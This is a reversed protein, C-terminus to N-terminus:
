DFEHLHEKTYTLMQESLHESQSELYSRFAEVDCNAQAMYFQVNRNLEEDGASSLYTAFINALEKGGELFAEWQAQETCVSMMGLLQYCFLPKFAEPAGGKEDFLANIYLQKGRRFLSMYRLTREVVHASTLQEAPMNGKLARDYLFYNHEGKAARKSLIVLYILFVGFLFPLAAAALFLLRALPSEVRAFTFAVILISIAFLIAAFRLLRRETDKQDLM